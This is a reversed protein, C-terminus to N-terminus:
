PTHQQKTGTASVQVGTLLWEVVGVIRSALAVLCLQGDHYSEAVRYIIHQRTTRSHQIRFIFFTEVLMYVVSCEKHVCEPAVVGVAHGIGMAAGFVGVSTVAEYVAAQVSDGVLFTCCQSDGGFLAFLM